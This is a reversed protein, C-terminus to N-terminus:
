AKSSEWRFRAPIGPQATRNEQFMAHPLGKYLVNNNNALYTGNIFGAWVGQQNKRVMVFAADSLVSGYGVMGKEATYTPRIDEQGFGCNLDNMVGMMREEGKWRVQVAIGRGRPQSEIVEIAKSRSDDLPSFPQPWLVTVFNINQGTRHEGCWTNAIAVEDQFHRRFPEISRTGSQHPVSPLSIYLAAEKRNEWDQVGRIHTIFWDDGQSLIDTTWWLSSFTRYDTRVALVTDIVLWCPLDPLFIISRDWRIGEKEDTVRVRHFTVDRLITQYLRETKIPQYRGDGRLFELLGTTGYSYGSRWVIRNHYVASRYIGDPPQERYGSEHLLLTGKHVLMPFSGEDAHGHHMKEASVALTTRLYDRAVRGYDGEDRYNLCAYSANSDWGIRWVIKKLVLDDLADEQNIPPEALLDDECWQWALGAVTALYASPTEDKRGEYIRNATWKMSSDHYAGAGWEMCALWEWHSHLLWHSDGYDPLIDLPSILQTIAKLYMRPQLLDILAKERGRAHAYLFIARLWHPQYLMADEISWRGWSEEALEDALTIWQGADAHDPFAKAALALGAARLMARNHGGWEPFRWIPKLTEALLSVLSDLESSTLTDRINQVAPTFIVPYFVPEMPPIGDEYEPRQAAANIPLHKQWDRYYILSTKTQDALQALGTRAYLFACTSGFDLMWRPPMYGFLPVSNGIQKLGNVLEEEVRGKEREYVAQIFREYNKKNTM